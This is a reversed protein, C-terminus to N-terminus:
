INYVTKRAWRKSLNQTPVINYDELLVTTFLTHHVYLIIIYLVTTYLIYCLLLGSPPARRLVKRVDVFRNLDAVCAAGNRVRLIHVIYIALGRRADQRVVRGGRSCRRARTERGLRVAYSLLLMKEYSM